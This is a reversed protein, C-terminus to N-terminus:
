KIVASPYSVRDPCESVISCYPHHRVASYVTRSQAPQNIAAWGHSRPREHDLHGTSRQAGTPSRGNMISTGPQDSGM